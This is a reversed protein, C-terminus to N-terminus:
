THFFFAIFNKMECLLLAVVVGGINVNQSASPMIWCPGEPRLEWAPKSCGRARWVAGAVADEISCLGTRGSPLLVGM